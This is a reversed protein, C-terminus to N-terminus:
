AAVGMEGMAARVASAPFKFARGDRLREGMVPYKPANPNLGTIRYRVGRSTFERGLWEPRLRFFAANQKFAQAERTMAQGDAGKVAFELKATFSTSTYNGGAQRVVLDTHGLEKLKASVAEVAVEHLVRCTSRDFQM